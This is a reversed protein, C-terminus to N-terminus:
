KKQKQKWEKYLDKIENKDDEDEVSISLWLFEKTDNYAINDQWNGSGFGDSNRGNEELFKSFSDIISKHEEETKAGSVTFAYGKGTIKSVVKDKDYDYKDERNVSYKLATRAM